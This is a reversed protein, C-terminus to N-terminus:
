TLSYTVYFAPENLPMRGHPGIDGPAAALLGRRLRNPASRKRGDALDATQDAPQEGSDADCLRM